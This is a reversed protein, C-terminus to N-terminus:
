VEQLEVAKTEVVVDSAELQIAQLGLSERSSGSGSRLGGRKEVKDFAVTCSKLTEAFYADITPSRGDQTSETTFWKRANVVKEADRLHKVYHEFSFGAESTLDVFNAFSLAPKEGELQESAGFKVDDGTKHM